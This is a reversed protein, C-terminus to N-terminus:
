AVAEPVADPTFSSRPFPAGDYTYPYDTGLTALLAALRREYQVLRLPRPRALEGLYPRVLALDEGRLPVYRQAVHAPMPTPWPEAWLSPSPTLGPRPRAHRPRPRGCRVAHRGTAPMLLRLAWVLARAIADRM